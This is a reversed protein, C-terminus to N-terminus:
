RPLDLLYRVIETLNRNTPQTRNGTGSQIHPSYPAAVDATPDQEIDGAVRAWARFAPLWGLTDALASTGARIPPSVQANPLMADDGAAAVTEDPPVATPAPKERFAQGGVLMQWENLRREDLNWQRFVQSVVALNGPPAGGPRAFTLPDGHFRSAAGLCLLAALDAALGVATGDDGIRGASPGVPWGEAATVVPGDRGIAAALQARTAHRLTFAAEETTGVASFTEGSDEILAPYPLPHSAAADAGSLAATARLGAIRGELFTALQAPTLAAPPLVTLVPAAGGIRHRLRDGAPNIEFAGEGTWWLKLLARNGPPYRLAGLGVPDGPNAPPAAVWLTSEDFVRAPAVPTATVAGLAGLRTVTDLLPFRPPPPAAPQPPVVPPASLLGLRALFSPGKLACPLIFMLGLAVVGVAVTWGITHHIAEDETGQGQTIANIIEAFIWMLLSALVPTSQIWAYKRLPAHDSFIAFGLWVLHIAAPLGWALWRWGEDFDYEYSIWTFVLSLLDVVSTLIGLTLPLSEPQKARLYISSVLPGALAVGQAWTLVELRSKRDSAEPTEKLFMRRAYPYTIALPLTAATTLGWPLLYLLWWGYGWRDDGRVAPLAHRVVAPPPTPPLATITFDSFGAPRNAEGGLGGAEDLAAIVADILKQPIEASTPWWTTFDGANPLELVHKACADGLLTEVAPDVYAGTDAPRGLTAGRLVPNVVVNSAITCMMGMGFARVMALEEASAGPIGLEVVRMAFRTAPAVVHSMNPDPSGRRLLHGLWTANRRMLDTYSFWDYAGGGLVAFKGIVGGGPRAPPGGELLAIAREALALVQEEVLGHPVPVRRERRFWKGYATAAANLLTEDFDDRIETIALRRRLADRLWTLRRHALVTVANNVIPTTM